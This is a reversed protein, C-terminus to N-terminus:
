SAWSLVIRNIIEEAINSYKKIAHRLFVYEEEKKLEIEKIMMRQAQSIQNNIMKPKIKNIKFGITRSEERLSNLMQQMKEANQAFLVQNDAFRLHNIRTGDFDVVFDKWEIRGFIFELAATM